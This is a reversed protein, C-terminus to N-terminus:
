GRLENSTPRLPPVTLLQGPTLRRPDTIRNASAIVRWLAPDNYEEAAISSLTEGRKVIRTPDDVPKSRKQQTQAPQWEEFSCSLNARTPTGDSLFRTYSTTVQMLVGWFEFPETLRGWQLLCIPPRPRKSLTGDQQTLAIIKKTYPRVDKAISVKPVPVPMAALYSAASALDLLSPLSDPLSTDFFLDLSLTAPTNAPILSNRDGHQWGVQVIQIQNPNYLVEFPKLLRNKTEPWIKLKALKTLM